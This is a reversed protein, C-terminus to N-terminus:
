LSEEYSLIIKKTLELRTSKAGSILTHPLKLLSLLELFSKHFAERITKQEKRINDAKFPVGKPDLLFFHTYTIIWKGEKELLKKWSHNKNVTKTYAIADLVSRDTLIIHPNKFHALQEQIKAIMQIKGQHFFSFPEQTKNYTFYFRAAEEVTEIMIGPLDKQLSKALSHLLTTKGVCSTGILAFKKQM